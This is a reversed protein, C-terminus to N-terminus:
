TYTTGPLLPDDPLLTARGLTCSRVPQGGAPTLQFSSVTGGPVWVSVPTGLPATVQQGASRCATAPDPSEGGASLPGAYAGRPFMVPAVLLNGTQGGDMVSPGNGVVGGGVVLSRPHMILDRHYASAVWGAISGLM